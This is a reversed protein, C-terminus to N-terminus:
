PVVVSQSVSGTKGAVDIVTLTVWYTGAAVWTYTMTPVTRSPTKGNGLRWVWRVIGADDTSTSGDLACTHAYTSVTPGCVFTFSAVPAQNTGGTAITISRTASTAAGQPDTATLTITHTGATLTTNAFSAGTGIQGDRSSTWVLSAGSLAGTEPDTGTGAFSVSTGQVFSGNAVPSTISVTPSQNASALITISRTASGTLGQADRATLTLTHAGVSLDSKVFSGGTGIQGDRSSTWVLSAGSLAGSEPDTGTGAFSVAVTGAISRTYVANNTPTSVAASPALNPAVATVTNTKTSTGNVDAVTLTVTYTGAAAYAHSTTKGSGATADGFNWSYTAAALGTSASADFTCSLLSCSSTFSAVPPTPAPTGNMFGTYLLLNPTGAPLSPIAGTTANSTLASRVQAPTASPTTQLYLAAAGAVHPSAMSTGSITSTGTGLWLSTIAAGPANIRVCSGHNSWSQFADDSGTAGVTIANPASAPSASCATAGNNGAAVAYTIGNAIGYEVAGNLAASYSGGLSMNVVAPRVINQAIWDLGAVVGSTTGNGGCDLVRVAVLRAQKAVGYTAGGVTGAVHTGHGNCDAASGGASVADFGTIARGQFDTQGFNIGTDVIYVTVGTGSPGFTYSQNLPRTRQDLRDLGWSPPNSQTTNITIVQDQEVSLVDPDASLAQAAAASMTLVAGPFVTTYLRGVTAGHTSALSQARLQWNLNPRYRVIYRGSIPTGSAALAPAAPSLPTSPAPSSLSDSCASLACCAAAALAIRRM